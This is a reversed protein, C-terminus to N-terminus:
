ATTTTTRERDDAADAFGDSERYIRGRREDGSATAHQAPSEEGEGDEREDRPRRDRVRLRALLLGFVGGLAVWVLALVPDGQRLFGLMFLFVCAFLAVATVARLVGVAAREGVAGRCGFVSSTGAIAVLAAGCVAILLTPGNGLQLVSAILGGIFGLAVAPMLPIIARDPMDKAKGCVGGNM